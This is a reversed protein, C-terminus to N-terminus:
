TKMTLTNRRKEESFIRRRRSGKLGSRGEIGLTDQRDARVVAAVDNRDARVLRQDKYAVQFKRADAAARTEARQLGAMFALRRM